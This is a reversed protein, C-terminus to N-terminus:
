KTHFKDAREEGIHKRNELFARQATYFDRLFAEASGENPSPQWGIRKQIRDRIELMLKLTDSGPPRRLVDELVQLELVGYVQMQRDTFQFSQQERVLDELIQRKPISIVITGAILDGVRLRDRSGLMLGFMAALWLAAPLVDTLSWLWGHTVLLLELPFFFEAQRTLNRAVVSGPRLPGGRRDIVRLGLMKKGPTVGAWRLEFFIFYCNRIVFALFLIVPMTLGAISTILGVIALLVAALTSVILDVLFAILREGPEAIEIRVPVGEPTLLFRERRGLSRGAVAAAITPSSM